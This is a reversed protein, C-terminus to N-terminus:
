IKGLMALCTMRSIEGPSSDSSGDSSDDSSECSVDGYCNLDEDRLAFSDEPALGIVVQAMSRCRSSGSGEAMIACSAWRMELNKISFIREDGRGEGHIM